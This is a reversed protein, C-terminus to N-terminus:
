HQQVAELELARPFLVNNEKHIHIHTDAELAALGQMLMRYSMCGDGPAVFGGTLQRMEAFLAGVHEHESEMVGIPGSVSMAIPSSFNGTLGHMLPFLIREEKTLHPEMDARLEAFAERVRALEPHREGHARLVKAALADLRPLESWALKHHTQVIHDALKDIPMHVWDAAEAAQQSPGAAAASAGRLDSLVKSADLGAASCAAGLTRKGGCCFDLGLKEMDPALRPCEAIISGLTTESTFSM